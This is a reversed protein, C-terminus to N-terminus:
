QRATQIEPKPEHNNKNKHNQHREVILKAVQMSIDAIAVKEGIGTELSDRNVFIKIEYLNRHPKTRIEQLDFLAAKFAERHQGFDAECKNAYAQMLRRGEKPTIFLHNVRFVHLKDLAWTFPKFLSKLRM